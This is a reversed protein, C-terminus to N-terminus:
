EAEDELTKVLQQLRDPDELLASLDALKAPDLYTTLVPAAMQIAQSGIFGFPRLMDILIPALGSLGWRQLREAWIRNADAIPQPTM